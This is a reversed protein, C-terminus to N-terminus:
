ASIPPILQEMPSHTHPTPAHQLLIPVLASLSTAPLRQTARPWRQVGLGLSIRTARELCVELFDWVSRLCRHQPQLRKTNIAIGFCSWVAHVLPLLQCSLRLQEVAAM